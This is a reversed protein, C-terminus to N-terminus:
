RFISPDRGRATCESQDAIRLAKSCASGESTFLPPTEFWWKRSVPSYKPHPKSKKIYVVVVFIM